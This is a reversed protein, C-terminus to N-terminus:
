SASPPSPRTACCAIRPKRWRRRRDPRAARLQTGVRTSTATCRRRSASCCTWRCTSRRRTATARRRDAAAPAGRDGRRGGRVPLARARLDGRFLALSRRRSRWCTASRRERQVLNGEAGPRDRGAAGQAPRLARRPRRRQDARPLREVPRRRRRRPDRPDPQARGAALLPQHSGARPARDRPQRAAGLRLRPRRHQRRHGDLQAAGGGMGIRM